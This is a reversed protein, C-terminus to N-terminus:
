PEKDADITQETQPPFRPGVYIGLLGVDGDEISIDAIEVGAGELAKRLQRALALRGAFNVDFNSKRGVKIRVGFVVQSWAQTGLHGNAGFGHAIGFERIPGAFDSAYQWAEPDQPSSLVFIEKTFRAPIATCLVAQQEKSLRRWAMRKELQVRALDAQAAREDAKGAKEVADGASKYAATIDNRLAETVKGNYHSTGVLGVLEAGVGLVLVWTFFKSIRGAKNKIRRVEELYLRYEAPPEPDVMHATQTKFVNTYEVLVEGLVGIFVVLTAAFDFYEWCSLISQLRSIDTTKPDLLLM